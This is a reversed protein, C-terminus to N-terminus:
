EKRGFLDSYYKRSYEYLEELAIGRQEPGAMVSAMARGKKGYHEVFDRVAQRVAQEDM